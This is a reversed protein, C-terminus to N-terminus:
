DCATALRSRRPQAGREAEPDDALAIFARADLSGHLGDPRSRDHVRCVAPWDDPRYDRVIVDM